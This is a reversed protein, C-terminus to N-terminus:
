MYSYYCAYFAIVIKMEMTVDCHVGIFEKSNIFLIISKKIDKQDTINLRNYHSIKLLFAEHEKLFPTNVIKQLRMKKYKSFFISFLFISVGSLFLVILLSLYYDM